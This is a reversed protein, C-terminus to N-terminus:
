KFTRTRHPKLDNAAWLRQVTSKPLGVHRAMRRCSWRGANQPPQVVETLVRRAKESDLTSPRGPRLAEELGALGLDVFRQRWLGVTVHSTGLPSAIEDKGKGEAALLAIRARRVMKQPAGPAKALRQLESRQEASLALVLKPRAM